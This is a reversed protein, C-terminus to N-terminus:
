APARAQMGPPVIASVSFLPTLKPSVTDCGLWLESPLKAESPSVTVSVSLLDQNWRTFSASTATPSPRNSTTPEIAPRTQFSPREIWVVRESASPPAMTISASGARISGPM